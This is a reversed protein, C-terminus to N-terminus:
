EKIFVNCKGNFFDTEVERYYDDPNDTHCHYEPNVYIKM